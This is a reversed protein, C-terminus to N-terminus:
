RTWGVPSYGRLYNEGVIEVDVRCYIPTLVRASAEVALRRRRPYTFISPELQDVSVLDMEFISKDWGRPIKVTAILEHESTECNTVITPFEKIDLSKNVFGDFWMKYHEHITQNLFEKYDYGINKLINYVDSNVLLVDGEFQLEFTKLTPSPGYCKTM